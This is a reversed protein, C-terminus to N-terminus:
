VHGSSRFLRKVARKLKGLARKTRFLFLYVGLISHRLLPRSYLTLPLLDTDEDIVGEEIAREQIETHPYIRIPNVHLEAGLTLRAKLAFMAWKMFTGLREGPPDLFFNYGVKTGKLRRAINYTNQIDEETIGKRLVRLIENSFADPSYAFKCWGAELALKAFEETMNNERFYGHLRVKIGRKVVEKLIEEAHQLPANFVNDVFWINRINWTSTLEEIEDGVDKPPRLRMEPSTLIPYTCYICDECCGRKTQVPMAFHAETKYKAGDVLDRRPKRAGGFDCPARKGTFHIQGNKRIFLGGVNGPNDLSRLLEPLSEEGELFFGCDIYRVKQMISEAFISFGAGGAIIMANPRADKITRVTHAFPELYSFLDDSDINRLSVGVVDPEFEGIKKQLDLLPSEELNPDFLEVTHETLAAAVYCLGLPFVPREKRGTHSQVLLIRM